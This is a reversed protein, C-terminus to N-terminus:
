PNMLGQLLNNGSISGPCSQGVYAPPPDGAPANIIGVVEGCADCEEGGLSTTLDHYGDPTKKCGGWPHGAVRPARTPAPDGPSRSAGHMYGGPSRIGVREAIDDLGTISRAVLEFEDGHATTVLEGAQVQYNQHPDPKFEHLVLGLAEKDTEAVISGMEVIRGKSRITWPIRKSM